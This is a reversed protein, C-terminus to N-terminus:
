FIPVLPRGYEVVFTFAPLLLLTSFTGRTFQYETRLVSALFTYGSSLLCLFLAKWRRSTLLTEGAREKSSISARSSSGPIPNLSQLALPLVRLIKNVPPSSDTKRRVCLRERSRCQRGDADYKMRSICKSKSPM